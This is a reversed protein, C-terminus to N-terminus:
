EFGSNLTLITSVPPTYEFFRRHTTEEPLRCTHKMAVSQRPTLPM